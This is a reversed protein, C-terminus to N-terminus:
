EGEIIATDAADTFTVDGDEDVGPKVDVEEDDDGAAAGAKSGKTRKEVKFKAVFFGDM